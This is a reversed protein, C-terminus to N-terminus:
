GGNDQVLYLDPVKALISDVAEMCEEASEHFRTGRLGNPGRVGFGIEYYWGTKVNGPPKPYHWVSVRSDRLRKGPEPRRFCDEDEKIWPGFVLIKALEDKLGYIVEPSLADIFRKAKAALDAQQSTSLM